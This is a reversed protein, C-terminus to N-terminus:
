RGPVAPTGTAACSAPPTSDNPFRALCAGIERALRSLAADLGTALAAYDGVRFSGSRDDTNGRLLVSNDLPRVIDWGAQMHVRGTTAASDVVGEFRSVHLQVIFDHATRTPWPAVDVARVPSVGTLHAAVSRNIAEDLNGAWRHFESIDLQSAGRRVVLGPMSSLYSALDIRRLGVTLGTPSATSSAANSAASSATNAASTPTGALGFYQVEPSKRSLRFCGTAALLLAVGALRASRLHRQMTM